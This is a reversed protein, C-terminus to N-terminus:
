HKNPDEEEEEEALEPEFDVPKMKVGHRKMLASFQERYKVSVQDPSLQYRCDFRERVCWCSWM